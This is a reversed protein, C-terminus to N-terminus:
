YKRPDQPLLCAKVSQNFRYISGGQKRHFCPPKIRIIIFSFQAM